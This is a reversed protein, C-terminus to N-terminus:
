MFFDNFILSKCQYTSGGIVYADCLLKATILYGDFLTKLGFHYTAPTNEQNRNLM